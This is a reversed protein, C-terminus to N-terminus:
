QPLGAIWSAVQGVSKGVASSHDGSVALYKSYGNKAAPRYITGETVSAAPDSDGILVLVPIRASLLPAQNPMNAARRPSMWSLYIEATTSVDFKRGQNNDPGTVPQAGQRAQVLAAAKEVAAIYDPMTRASFGPSHGPSIMVIAAIDPRAVGYSLAVNGGISHGAIVIRRAGQSRLQAVYGDILSHAGEVTVNIKQWDSSAWPMKPSVTKMGRRQLESELQAMGPPTGPSSQKGHLLVVGIDGQAAAQQASFISISISISLAL